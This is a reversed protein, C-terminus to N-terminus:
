AGYGKRTGCYDHGCTAGNTNNLYDNNGTAVDDSAQPPV